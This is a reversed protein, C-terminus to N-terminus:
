KFMWSNRLNIKDVDAKSDELLGTEPYTPKGVKGTLNLTEDNRKVTLTIEKDEDWGLSKTLMQNIKESNEQNIEPFLEGNLGLFVDGIQLGIKEISQNLQNVIFQLEGSPNPQSSFFLKTGESFIISRLPMEVEGNILGVKTFYYNYDIPTIGIIHNDFFEGVEPYTMSIIEEILQDDKFPTDKGYKKALNKMVWLIGKSGGSKERILIDLCMNILAGKQYVNGYNSQYPENVIGASMETFSMTDDYNKALNVKEIIRNYFDSSEILGQNIQFLNAFYETTGEYMWLHKSM